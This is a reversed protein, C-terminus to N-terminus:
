TLPATSSAGACRPRESSAWVSRKRTPRRPAPNKTPPSSGRDRKLGRKTAVAPSIRNGPVKVVLVGRRIGDDLFTPDVDAFADTERDYRRCSLVQVQGAALRRVIHINEMEPRTDVPLGKAHAACRTVLWNGYQYLPGVEGCEECTCAARAEALAIAEEVLASADPSLRGDWYFRASFCCAFPLVTSKM